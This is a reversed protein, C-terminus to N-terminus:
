LWWEFLLVLFDEFPLEPQMWGVSSTSISSFGAVGNRGNRNEPRDICNDLLPGSRHLCISENEGTVPPSNMDLGLEM